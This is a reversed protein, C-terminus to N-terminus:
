SQPEVTLTLSMVRVRGLKAHDENFPIGEAIDVVRWGDTNITGAEFGERTRAMVAGLASENGLFPVSVFLESTYRGSEPPWDVAEFPKVDVHISANKPLRTSLYAAVANCITGHNPAGTV